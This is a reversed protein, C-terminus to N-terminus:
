PVLPLTELEGGDGDLAVVTLEGDPTAAEAVFVTRRGSQIIEAETSRDGSRVEVRAVDQRVLGAVFRRNGSATWTALVFPNRPRRVSDIGGGSSADMGDVVLEVNSLDSGRQILMWASGDDFSGAAVVEEGAPLTTAPLVEDEDSSGEDDIPLSM